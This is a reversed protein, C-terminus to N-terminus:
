EVVEQVENRGTPLFKGSPWPGPQLAQLTMAWDSEDTKKQYVVAPAHLMAPPSEHEFSLEVPKGPTLEFLSSGDRCGDIIDWKFLIPIDEKDAKYEIRYYYQYKGTSGDYTVKHTLYIVRNTFIQMGSRMEMNMPYDSFYTNPTPVVPNVSGSNMPFRDAILLIFGAIFVMGLLLCAIKVLTSM